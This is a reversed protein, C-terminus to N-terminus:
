ADKAMRKAQEIPFVGLQKGAKDILRVERYSM